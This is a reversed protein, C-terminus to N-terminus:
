RRAYYKVVDLAPLHINTSVLYRTKKRKEKVVVVAVQGLGKIIGVFKAIKLTKNKGYLLLSVERYASPESDLETLKTRKGQTWIVSNSKLQSIM